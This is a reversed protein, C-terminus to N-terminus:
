YLRSAISDFIFAETPSSNFNDYYTWGEKHLSDNFNFVQAITNVSLALLLGLTLNKM